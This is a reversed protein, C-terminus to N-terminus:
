SIESSSALNSVNAFTIVGLTEYVAARRARM